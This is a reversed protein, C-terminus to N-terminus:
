VADIVGGVPDAVSLLAGGVANNLEWNVSLQLPRYDSIRTLVIVHSPSLTGQTYECFGAFNDGKRLNESNYVGGPLYGIDLGTFTNIGAVNGGIDLTRPQAVVLPPYDM